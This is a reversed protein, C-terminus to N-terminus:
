LKGPGSQPKKEQFWKMEARQSYITLHICTAFSPSTEQWLGLCFSESPSPPCEVVWNGDSDSGGKSIGLAFPAGVKPLIETAWIWAPRDRQNGAEVLRLTTCYNRCDCLSVGWPLRLFGEWFRSSSSSAQISRRVFSPGNRLPCTVRHNSDALLVYLRTRRNIKQSKKHLEPRQSLFNQDRIEARM